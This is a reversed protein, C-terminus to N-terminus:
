EDHWNDKVSAYKKGTNGSAKEKKAPKSKKKPANEDEDSGELNLTDILYRARVGDVGNSMLVSYIPHWVDYTIDRLALQYKIATQAVALQLLAQERDNPPEPSAELLVKPDADLLQKVRNESVGETVLYERMMDHRLKDNENDHATGADVDHALMVQAIGILAIAKEKNSFM